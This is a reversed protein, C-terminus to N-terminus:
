TGATADILIVHLFRPGHVGKIRTLEIDSTASPGSIFTTPLKSTPTLLDIAEPVTEVVDEAKLVCIHSDPILTVARRGQGPVNQVVLTGTQAIALTAGTVIGAFRDLEAASFNDDMSFQTQQPLMDTPFGSAVLIPECRMAEIARQVASPVDEPPVREVHAEYDRLRDVLLDLLEDRSLTSTRRYDRPIERWALDAMDRGSSSHNAARIRQLVVERASDTVTIGAM